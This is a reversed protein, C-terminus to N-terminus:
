RKIAILLMSLPLGMNNYVDTLGIDYDYEEFLIIDMNSKITKNIIKSIPHSFSIFTKSEYEGSVYGMGSNEIWPEKTFYKNKLIVPIKSNYDEEGPLPLINMFPHFDHLIMIGNKKLCRSVVNFLLELDKFWTIAGITFIIVDFSNNYENDLDLINEAFFDCALGLEKTHQKAQMIFNQAIDFGTGTVGYHKVISLLERGNNCCFQAVKKNSLELKDLEAKINPHIYYDSKNKLNSVVEDGWGDLRNEFAEEWAQKNEKIYNM